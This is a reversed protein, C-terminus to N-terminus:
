PATQPTGRLWGGLMKGIEVLREAAQGYQGQSMTHTDYALRLLVKLLDLQESAAFLAARRLGPARRHQARLLLVLLELSASTIRAGLTHRARKPM